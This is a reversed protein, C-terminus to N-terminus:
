DAKRRCVMLYYITPTAILSLLVSICLAGIVAIALPKLMDAGSGIGYALPLMGLAAAMSTMLVPRLRRRGSRVLAEALDLGQARLEKVFDLMLIGNKAVIGVGIIAGLLSVVNLSTRTVWLALITGFMALVAGFVIALPEYFSGFEVLLVTFVLFIAMLLVIMLNRFSEQQQEYLGGYEIAALPITKDKSLVDRIEAMASGLDRGELRATVAVDQRSDERRLELQGPEERIDVAQSLKILTGDPTRLPLERLNALRDLRSPDVKVRIAVVRDGELVSSATQGLMATHAAAAVDDATLGFRQADPLRLRLSITPGTYVLGNFVDVVGTIKKIREAVEPAKKELWAQRTSFLKVEIPQPAWMLDGILDGLIGPFEWTLGPLETNFRRRLESIVDATKRQRDSKLKVLFDGTNPEAISLALRAGTRRSYSALEPVTRLIKEAQLLQRHTEALSTGPPTFYDIVFGGEDMPPLFESELRNYLFVAALLVLGCVGLTLWPRKLTFRVGTEYIGIVRQLLPGGHEGHLGVPEDTRSRLLWAALSPTLTMALVLSTLLAVVMTLALARFFVGTIGELFALPIFVVVPTLTSGVLPRLIEGIGDRIAELRPKGATRKTHIAEVVVIADDIVLGIAAAIGGLTMLNFTLGAIKMSLLTVLVTVPIVLTAVLTTGWNKLFFYLIVVSLILGFFIAEWVSEVSTRVIESQDYFFALKMDPPLERKLEALQKKLAKAIDLTSGDPQSRVNLLVANEGDATVVNFVPEPGREVRAFDRVRVPHGGTVTVPFNEIDRISRLRGDVVTLYLTRNEEHMGASAVFNNNTLSETVQPLTLGAASLRLPDVVIHYEPMRGGVLDVRAVGPIRLFRLKLNYRATEWLEIIGRASSTLSVGLIPFASFTLRFVSTEVTSPLSARIQSLRSLVYLESQIMDANWTFFVSVEAAGRGTTSRITTVGRIDKMAEEIPRTITAMMEDAPMVGNDVLIVVRPFDTQPFVSSSITLASFVGALCLAASIFVISVSHRTAFRGLAAYKSM